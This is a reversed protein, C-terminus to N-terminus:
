ANFVFHRNRGLGKARYLEQDACKVLLDPSYDVAKNYPLNAIGLSITIYDSVHSENHAIRLEEIHKCLSNISYSRKTPVKKTVIFEEGGFRFVRDFDLENLTKAIKRLVVDGELHGYYDNYLKFYDIDLMGVILTDGKEMSDMQEQLFPELTRRNYTGTLQDKNALEQEALIARYQGKILNNLRIQVPIIIAASFFSYILAWLVSVNTIVGITVISIIFIIIIGVTKRLSILPFISLGVVYLGCADSAVVKYALATEFFIISQTLTILIMSILVCNYVTKPRKNKIAWLNFTIILICFFRFTHGLTFNITGAHLIESISFFSFIFIAIAFYILVIKKNVQLSWELFDEEVKPSFNTNAKSLNSEM